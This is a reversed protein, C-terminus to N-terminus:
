GEKRRGTEYTEDEEFSKDDTDINKKTEKMSIRFLAGIKPFFESLLFWFGVAIVLVLFVFTPSM